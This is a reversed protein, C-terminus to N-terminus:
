TTGYKFAAEIMAKYNNINIYGPVTNSTGVTYGGNYGLTGIRERVMEEIEEQKGRSLLDIDVSGMLCFQNGRKQKLEVLDMSKPELPQIGNIGMEAFDDFVDWLKGDTHFIVPVDLNKAVKSMKSVYPWLYQRYVSPPLMLGETYAVDDSYFIAGIKDGFSDVLVDLMRLEAIANQRFLETVLEPNEYLAFCFNEFGMTIWSRTYIDAAHVVLKMGSPLKKALQKLFEYNYGELNWINKYISTWEFESNNLQEISQLNGHNTNISQFEKVTAPIDKGTKCLRIQVYDYGAKVWFDIEDEPTCLTHGIIGEKVATDVNFDFLPVRDAKGQLLLTKRLRGFDPDPKINIFM